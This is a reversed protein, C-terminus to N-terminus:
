AAAKCRGCVVAPKTAPQPDVAVYGCIACKLPIGDLVHPPRKRRGGLWLGVVMCIAGGVAGGLQEAGSM